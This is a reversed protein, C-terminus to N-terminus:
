SLNNYFLGRSTLSFSCHEQSQEKGKEGKETETLDAKGHIALEKKESRM